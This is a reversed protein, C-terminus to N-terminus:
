ARPCAKEPFHNEPLHELRSPAPRSPDAAVSGDVERMLRLYGIATRRWSFQSARALGAAVLKLRLEPDGQLRAIAAVWARPDDPSAYLVANGCVEPLSAADSSVVACGLTMAELPPLGFGETRSPFVFCFCRGFLMALDDDEVRGLFRINDPPRTRTEAAYVAQDREGTVVIDLGLRDLEPAIAHVLSVNKHPVRSGVMLVFPRPFDAERLRSCPARWTRAHEHGDPLISIKDRAAIGHRVLMDRSYASVTAVRCVRRGLAPELMRYLMRFPTSYSDPAVRTNADHICLIQRRVAIPGTNCLSLLNADVSRPLTCQEWVHGSFGALVRVPIHSFPSPAVLDKPVLVEIALDEADPHREAMLLDLQRLVEWGYRDVGTVRRGLFRGNVQWRRRSM